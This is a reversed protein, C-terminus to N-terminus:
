YDVFAIKHVRSAMKCAYYLSHCAPQINIALILEHSFRCDNSCRTCGCDRMTSGHNADNGSTWTQTKKKKKKSSRTNFLWEPALWRWKCGQKLKSSAIEERWRAWESLLVSNYMIVRPNAYINSPTTIQHKLQSATKCKWKLPSFTIIHNENAENDLASRCMDVHRSMQLRRSMYFVWVQHKNKACSEAKYQLSPSIKGM